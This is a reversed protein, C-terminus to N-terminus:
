PAVPCREKISPSLHYMECSPFLSTFAMLSSNVLRQFRPLFPRIKTTYMNDAEYNIMQILLPSSNELQSFPLLPTVLTFLYWVMPVTNPFVQGPRTFMLTPSLPGYKALLPGVRLKRFSSGLLCPGCVSGHISLYFNFFSHYGLCFNSSPCAPAM